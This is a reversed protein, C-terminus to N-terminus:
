KTSLLKDLTAKAQKAKDQDGLAAYIEALMRDIVPNFPNIQIAEELV